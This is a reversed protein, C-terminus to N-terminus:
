EELSGAKDNLGTGATSGSRGSELSKEINNVANYSSELVKELSSKLNAFSKYLKEDSKLKEFEAMFLRRAADKYSLGLQQQLVLVEAHASM